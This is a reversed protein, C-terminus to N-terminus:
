ESHDNDGDASLEPSNSNDLPNTSTPPTLNYGAKLTPFIGPTPKWNCNRGENYIDELVEEFIGESKFQLY